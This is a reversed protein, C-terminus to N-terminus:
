SVAELKAILGQIKETATNLKDQNELTNGKVSELEASLTEKDTILAQVAADLERVKENLESNENRVNQITEIMADIKTELTTIVDMPM